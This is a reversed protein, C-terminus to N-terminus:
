ANIQRKTPLLQAVPNSFVHVHGDIWAMVKVLETASTPKVPSGYWFTVCPVLYINIQKWCSQKRIRFTDTLVGTIFGIPQFFDSFM